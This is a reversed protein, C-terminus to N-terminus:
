RISSLKGKRAWASDLQHGVDAAEEVALECVMCTFSSKDMENTPRSNVYREPRGGCAGRATFEWANRQPGLDGRVDTVLM